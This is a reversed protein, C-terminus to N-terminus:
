SELGFSRQVSQFEEVWQNFFQAIFEKLQLGSLHGLRDVVWQSCDWLGKLYPATLSSIFTGAMEGAQYSIGDGRIHRVVLGKSMMLMLGKEVLKRRVLLEASRLPIRPHLSEPGGVDGTHVVLYDFAVLQYLDFTAPYAAVLTGVARVGAELPSNFTVGYQTTTSMDKEM